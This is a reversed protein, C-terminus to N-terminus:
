VRDSVRVFGGEWIVPGPSGLRLAGAPPRNLERLPLAPDPAFGAAALEEFLQAESLFCQPQGSFQTFVFTEGPVPASERNLTQRSFTFVFLRGGPRTVRSADRVAQRFQAGSTALNWIGHAVVLDVSATQVPLADMGAIAVQLRGNLAEADIRDATARLMPWSNDVGLVNWGARALPIANRGAGCGIDLLRAAGHPRAAEAYRLLTENPASQVFGAVTGADTWPTGTV